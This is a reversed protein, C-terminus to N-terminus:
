TVVEVEVQPTEDGLLGLALALRRPVSLDSVLNAMTHCYAVVSRAAV